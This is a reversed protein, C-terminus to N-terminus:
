QGITLGLGRISAANTKRGRRDLLRTFGKSYMAVSITLASDKGRKKDVRTDRSGRTGMM